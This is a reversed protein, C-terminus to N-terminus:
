WGKDVTIHGTAPTLTIKYKKDKANALRVSGTSSTGNPNFQKNRTGTTYNNVFAIDAWSSIDNVIGELAWTDSGDAQNGRELSFTEADLDFMVRYEVGRAIAKMRALQMTIGIERVSNKFKFNEIWAKFGPVAITTLLGILGIVILAEVFSFGTLHRKGPLIERHSLICFNKLNAKAEAGPIELLNFKNFLRVTLNKGKLELKNCLLKSALLCINKLMNFKLINEFVVWRRTKFFSGVSSRLFNTPRLFQAIGRRGKRM